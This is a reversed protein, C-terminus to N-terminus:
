DRGDHRSFARLPYEARRARARCVAVCYFRVGPSGCSGSAPDVSDMAADEVLALRSLDFLRFDPRCEDRPDPFYGLANSIMAIDETLASLLRAPGIKELTRLPAALLRESLQTRLRLATTQALHLLLTESVIKSFFLLASLGIFTSLPALSPVDLQRALAKQILTILVASAAGSLIGAVGAVAVLWFSGRLLLVLLNM